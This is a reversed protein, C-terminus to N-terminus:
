SKTAAGTKNPRRRDPILPKISAVLEAIRNTIDEGAGAWEEANDPDGRFVVPEGFRIALEQKFKWNPRFNKPWV